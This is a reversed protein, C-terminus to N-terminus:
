SLRLLVLKRHQPIHSSTCNTVGASQLRGEEGPLFAPRGLLTHYYSKSHTKKQSPSNLIPESVCVTQTFTVAATEWQLRGEVLTLQGHLCFASRDEERAACPLSGNSRAGLHLQASSHDGTESWKDSVEPLWNLETGWHFKHKKEAPNGFNVSLPCHATSPSLWRLADGGLKLALCLAGRLNAGLWSRVQGRRWERWGKSNVGAYVTKNEQLRLAAQVRPEWKEGAQPM